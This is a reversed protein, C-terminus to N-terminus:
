FKWRIQMEVDTQSSANIQQLGSSIHDRDFYDTTGVKAIVLLNDFPETRAFLAYRIGEGYFAPFYFSYLPGREYTYIRSSYDDTNFYGVTAILKIRKLSCGATATTMWGLSNTKYKNYAIDGQLRASWISGSYSASLRGRNMTDDIISTAGTNNKQRMKLRYRGLITWHETAWTMTLANDWSHSTKMVQYRPWYFYAYDTYLTINLNNAAQWNAGVYIGNENQIHGGESFSSAFLSSYKHSYYRQLAILSLTSSVKASITNITAIGHSGGTATEGNVTLWHNIYGYDISANWFNTGRPYYQRYKQGTRPKLERDLRAYLGTMGIHFGGRKWHLNGGTATQHANNKKRMETPTRHYGSTVITAITGDDNLTADIGRYSFFGTLELGKTLEVTAAAGQMYSAVSRSTNARISNTSRGLTSLTMQKGFGLANNIVLGMGLRLKYQGIALAKIRGLRRVIIYLTYHDYGMRNKDAFFPEGSDQSGQIGAKIYDSLHFDYRFSHRYKPGLYGYRDGKRDYLPIKGTFLVEHKGYKLINALKPFSKKKETNGVYVFWRLLNRRIPDLSEIMALEGLTRMGHYQYVYAEIDEIQQETLFPIAALEERTANNIDIPNNELESLIDFMDETTEIDDDDTTTLEDLYKEWPRREQANTPICSLLFLTLPLIKILTTRM